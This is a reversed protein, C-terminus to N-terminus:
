NSFKKEKKRKKRGVNYQVKPGNTPPLEQTNKKKKFKGVLTINHIELNVYYNSGRQRSTIEFTVEVIDDKKFRDLDKCKQNQNNGVMKLPLPYTSGDDRNCVIVVTRTIFKGAFLVSESHVILIRGKTKVKM